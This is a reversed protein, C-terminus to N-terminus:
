GAMSTVSINVLTAILLGQVGERPESLDHDQIGLPGHGLFGPSESLLHDLLANDGLVVIAREGHDSALVVQTGSDVM